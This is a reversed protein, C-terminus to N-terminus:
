MVDPTKFKLIVSGYNQESDAAEEAQEKYKKAMSLCFDLKDKLSTLDYRENGAAYSEIDGQLMGAKLTWLVSAAEYINSSEELIEDLEDDSFAADEDTGGEPIRDGIMRRLRKRLAETIEM